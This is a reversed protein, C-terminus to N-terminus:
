GGSPRLSCASGPGLALTQGSPTYLLWHESDAREQAFLRLAVSGELRFRADFAGEFDVAVLAKGDLVSILAAVEPGSDGSGVWLAGDVEIRWACGYAWLHWEGHAKEGPREVPAGFEVTLFTGHGPAAGWARQGVMPGLTETIM